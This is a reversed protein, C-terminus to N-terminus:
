KVPEYIRQIRKGTRHQFEVLVEHDSQSPDGRQRLVLDKGLHAEMKEIADHLTLNEFNAELSGTGVNPTHVEVRWIRAATKLGDAM